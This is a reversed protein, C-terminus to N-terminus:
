CGDVMKRVMYWTGLIITGTRVHCCGCCRTTYLRDRSPKFHHMDEVLTPLFMSLGPRPSFFRRLRWLWPVVVSRGGGGGSSGPYGARCRPYFCIGQFPPSSDEKQSVPNQALLRSPMVVVLNWDNVIYLLIWITDLCRPRFELAVLIPLM